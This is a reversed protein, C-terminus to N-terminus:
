IYFLRCYLRSCFCTEKLSMDQQTFSGFVQNKQITVCAEVQSKITYWQQIIWHVNDTCDVSLKSIKELEM